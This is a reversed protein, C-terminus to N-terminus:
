RKMAWFHCIVPRVTLAQFTFRPVFNTVSWPHVCISTFYFNELCLSPIYMKDKDQDRITMEQIEKLWSFSMAHSMSVLLTTHVRISLPLNTLWIALNSAITTFYETEVKYKAM